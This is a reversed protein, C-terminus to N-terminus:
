SSFTLNGLMTLQTYTRLFSSRYHRNCLIIVCCDSYPSGNWTGIVNCFYMFVEVTSDFSNVRDLIEWFTFAITRAKTLNSLLGAIFSFTNTGHQILFLVQLLTFLHSCLVNLPFIDLFCFLRLVGKKWDVKLWFPPGTWFSFYYTRIHCIIMNKTTGTGTGCPIGIRFPTWWGIIQVFNGSFQM